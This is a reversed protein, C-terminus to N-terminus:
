NAMRFTVQANEDGIAEALGIPNEIQGIPTYSYSTPFSEYFLVLCNPGYLMLDGTTINGPSQSNVPLDNEFYYFKENSSQDQMNVTMPLKKAFEKATENSKLKATFTQNAIIVEIILNEELSASTTELSPPTNPVAKCSCLALFLFLCLVLCLLGKIKTRANITMLKKIM